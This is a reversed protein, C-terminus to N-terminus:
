NGTGSYKKQVKKRKCKKDKPVADEPLAMCIKEIDDRISFNNQDIIKNSMHPLYGDFSQAKMTGISIPAVKQAVNEQAVNEQCLKRSCKKGIQQRLAVSKMPRYYLMTLDYSV